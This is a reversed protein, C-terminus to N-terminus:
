SPATGPAAHQLAHAAGPWSFSGFGLASAAPSARARRGSGEGEAGAGARLPREADDLQEGLLERLRALRYRATQPHVHLARAMAAANGRHSIYALATSEMRERAKPTLEDLPALRRAAIREVAPRGQVLALEGLREDTRVLGAEGAGAVRLSGAEMAQIALLAM